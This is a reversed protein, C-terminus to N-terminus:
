AGKRTGPPEDIGFREAVKIWLSERLEPAKQVAKNIEKRLADLVSHATGRIRITYSKAGGEHYSFSRLWFCCHV